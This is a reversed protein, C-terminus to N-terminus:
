VGRAGHQEVHVFEAPILIDALLDAHRHLDKRGRNWGALNVAINGAVADGTQFRQGANGDAARDAILGGCQEPLATEVRALRFVSVAGAAEEQHVGTFLTHFGLVIQKGADCPAQVVFHKIGNFAAGEVGTGRDLPQPILQMQDSVRRFAVFERFAHRVRATNIHNGGKGTEARGIPIHIGAATDDADGASCVASM